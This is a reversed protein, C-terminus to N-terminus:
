LRMWYMAARLRNYDPLGEVPGISAVVPCKDYIYKSCVDRVTKASISDIAADLEAYSTRQGTFLLQRGIDNCTAASSGVRELLQMKLQNKARTVEFETISSCLRMWEGQVNFMMDDITHRDAVFHLGWLGTDSHEHNFSEFQLCMQEQANSSGLRSAINVGAGYTREWSGIVASAVSLVLSDHSGFKAGEVAIAVHALPLDDYRARVESGTFRCHRLVPIEQDYNLSIDGFLKDGLAVLEDHNVGGVAALVMRPPKFHLKSFSIVDAPTLSKLSDTTGLLSLGLPTGQFASAYLYDMTVTKLDTEAAELEALVAAREQDVSAQMYNGNTIIDAIIEVARPVDKSLCQAYIATVERSASAAFRIGLSEAENLLDAESKKLTGKFALREFLHALGNSKANEYRSGADTWVGVTAVSGNNSESAIRLQNKNRTVKTEKLNLTEQYTAARASTWRSSTTLCQNLRFLIRPFRGVVVKGTLFAIGFM